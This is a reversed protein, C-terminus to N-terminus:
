FETNALKRPIKPIETDWLEDEAIFKPDKFKDLFNVTKGHRRLRSTGRLSPKPEPKQGSFVEFKDSFHLKELGTVDNM